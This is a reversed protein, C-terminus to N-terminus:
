SNSNRSFQKSKYYKNKENKANNSKVTLPVKDLIMKKFNKM